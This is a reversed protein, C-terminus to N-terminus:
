SREHMHWVYRLQRVGVWGADWVYRAPRFIPAYSKYLSVPVRPRRAGVRVRALSRIGVRM